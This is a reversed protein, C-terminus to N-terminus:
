VGNAQYLSVFVRFTTARLYGLLQNDQFSTGGGRRPEPYCISRPLVPKQVLRPSDSIEFGPSQFATM